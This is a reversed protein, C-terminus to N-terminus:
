KKSTVNNQWSSSLGRQQTKIEKLGSITQLLPINISSSTQATVGHNQGNDGDQSTDGDEGGGDYEVPSTLIIWIQIWFARHKESKRWDFVWEWSLHDSDSQTRERGVTINFDQDFKAQIDLSVECWCGVSVVGSGRIEKLVIRRLRRCWIFFLRNQVKSNNRAARRAHDAQREVELVVRCGVWVQVQAQLPFLYPLFLLRIVLHKNWETTAFIEEGSRDKMIFLPDAKMPISMQRQPFLIIRVERRRVGRTWHHAFQPAHKQVKQHWFILFRLQVSAPLHQLQSQQVHVLSSVTLTKTRCSGSVCISRGTKPSLTPNHWGEDKGTPTQPACVSVCM